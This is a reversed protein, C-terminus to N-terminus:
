TISIKRVDIGNENFTTFYLNGKDPGMLNENDEIDYEGIYKFGNEEIVYVKRKSDLICIYTDDSNVQVPEVNDMLLEKNNGDISMIYLKEEDAKSYLIKDKVLWIREVNIATVGM